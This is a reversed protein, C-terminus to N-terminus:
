RRRTRFGFAVLLSGLALGIVTTSSEPINAAETGMLGAVSAGVGDLWLYYKGDAGLWTDGLTKGTVDFGTAYTWTLSGVVSTGKGAYTNFLGNLVGANYGFIVSPATTLTKIQAASLLTDWMAYDDLYGMLPGQGGGNAAQQVRNGLVIPAVNGGHLVGSGNYAIDYSSGVAVGNVYFTCADSNTKSSDWEIATHIWGGSTVIGVATTINKISYGGSGNDKAVSFKFQGSSTISFAWGTGSANATINNANAIGQESSETRSGDYYIWTSITMRGGNTDLRFKDTSNPLVIGGYQSNNVGLYQSYSSSLNPAAKTSTPAGPTAGGYAGNVATGIGGASGQNALSANTGDDFPMYYVLDAKIVSCSLFLAGVMLM